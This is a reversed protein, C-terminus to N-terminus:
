AVQTLFRITEEADPSKDARESTDKFHYSVFRVKGDRELRSFFYCANNESKPAPGVEVLPLLKLAQGSGKTSLYLREVDLWTTMERTEKLFVSNSGMLVSVENEFSGRRPRCHLARILEVRTWTNAFVGGLKQVETLLEENRLQAEQQGVVGGHGSWDNRMKCTTALIDALSKSALVQPLTLSPDSFM